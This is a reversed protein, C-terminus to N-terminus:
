IKKGKLDSRNKRNEYYINRSKSERKGPPLADRVKDRKKNSKGTQHEVIDKIKPKRRDKLLNFEKEKESKFM